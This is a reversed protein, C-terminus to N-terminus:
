KVEIWQGEIVTVKRLESEGYRFPDVKTDNSQDQLRPEKRLGKQFLWLGAAMILAPTGTMGLGVLAAGWKILPNPVFIYVATTIGVTGLAVFPGVTGIAVAVSSAVLLSRFSINM